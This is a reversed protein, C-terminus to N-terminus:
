PGDKKSGAPLRAAPLNAGPADAHGPAILTGSRGGTKELVRIGEIVMGKDVAKGMDIVTLCAVAVATLAEMEVGTRSQTRATATIHVRGDLLEARIDVADLPLTHCLPILEDTRKAAQIGALRAVELLSGKALTNDRIRTALEPSVRVFGEATASRATVPKDGVDVM